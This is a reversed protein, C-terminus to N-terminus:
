SVARPLHHLGDGQVRRAPGNEWDDQSTQGDVAQPLDANRHCRWPWPREIQFTDELSITTWGESWWPCSATGRHTHWRGLPNRCCELTQWCSSGRGAIDRCRGFWPRPHLAVPAPDIQRDSTGPHCRTTLILRYTQRVSNRYKQGWNSITGSSSGWFAITAEDARVHWELRRLVM